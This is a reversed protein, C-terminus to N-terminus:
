HNFINFIYSIENKNLRDRPVKTIGYGRKLHGSGKFLKKEIDKRMNEDLSERSIYKKGKYIYQNYSRMSYVPEHSYLYNKIIGIGELTNTDNNMELIYFVSNLPTDNSNIKKPLAYICKWPEELQNEVFRKNEIFTDNSFRTTGIWFLSGNREFM